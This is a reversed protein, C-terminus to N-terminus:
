AAEDDKLAERLVRVAKIRAKADLHSDFEVLPSIPTDPHRWFDPPEVDLADAWADVVSLTMEIEGREYRSVTAQDVGLRDALQTQNLGRKQRWARFNQLPPKRKSKPMDRPHVRGNVFHLACPAYYERSTNHADRM